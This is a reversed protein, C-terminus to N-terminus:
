EIYKGTSPSVNLKYALYTKITSREFRSLPGNGLKQFFQSFKEIDEDVVQELLKGDSADKPRM